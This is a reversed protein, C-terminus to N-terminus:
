FHAKLAKWLLLWSCSWHESFDCIDLRKYRFSKPGSRGNNISLSAKDPFTAVSLVSNLVSLFNNKKILLAVERKM